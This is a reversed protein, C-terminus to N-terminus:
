GAADQGQSRRKQGKIIQACQADTIEAAIKQKNESLVWALRTGIALGAARYNRFGRITAPTQPSAATGDGPQNVPVRRLNLSGVVIGELM